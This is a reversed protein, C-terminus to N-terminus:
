CSGKHTQLCASGRLLPLVKVMAAGHAGDVCTTRSTGSPPVLSTAAEGDVAQQHSRAGRSTAWIFGQIWALEANGGGIYKEEHTTQALM